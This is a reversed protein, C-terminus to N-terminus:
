VIGKLNLFSAVCYNLREITSKKGISAVLNGDPLFYKKM